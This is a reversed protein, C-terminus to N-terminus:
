LHYKIVQGLWKTWCARSSPNKVTKESIKEDAMISDHEQLGM